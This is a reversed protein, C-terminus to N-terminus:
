EPVAPVPVPEAVVVAVAPKVGVPYEGPRIEKAIKKALQAVAISMGDYAMKPDIQLSEFDKFSYKPDSLVETVSFFQLKANKDEMDQFFVAVNSVPQYAASSGEAVYTSSLTETWLAWRTKVASSDFAVVGDQKKPAPVATLSIGRAILENQLENNFIDRLPNEKFNEKQSEFFAQSNEKNKAMVGAVYIVGVITYGTTNIATGMKTVGSALKISLNSDNKLIPPLSLQLIDKAFASGGLIACAAIALLTRQYINIKSM